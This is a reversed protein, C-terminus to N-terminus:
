ESDSADVAPSARQAAPTTLVADAATIVKSWTVGVPGTGNVSVKVKGLKSGASPVRVPTVMPAVVFAEADTFTNFVVEDGCVKLFAVADTGSM